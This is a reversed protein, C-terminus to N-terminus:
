KSFYQTQNHTYDYILHVISSYYVLINLTHYLKHYLLIFINLNAIIFLIFITKANNFPLNYLM